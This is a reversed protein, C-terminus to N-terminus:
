HSVSNLSVRLRRFENRTRRKTAPLLHRHRNFLTPAVLVIFVLSSHEGSAAKKKKNKKRGVKEKQRHPHLRLLLLHPPSQRFTRPGLNIQDREAGSYASAISSSVEFKKLRVFAVPSNKHEAFLPLSVTFSHPCHKYYLFFALSRVASRFPYVYVSPASSVCTSFM